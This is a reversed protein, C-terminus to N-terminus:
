LQQIFVTSRFSFWYFLQTSKSQFTIIATYVLRFGHWNSDNKSSKRSLCVGRCNQEETSCMQLGARIQPVRKSHSEGTPSRNVVVWVSGLATGKPAVKLLFPFSPSSDAANGYYLRDHTHQCKFFPKNDLSLPPPACLHSELSTGLSEHEEECKM